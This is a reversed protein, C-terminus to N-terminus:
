FAKGISLAVSAGEINEATVKKNADNKNVLTAGDIDMYSTEFRVFAGNDMDYNYGVGVTYGDLTTNGYAGGSGLSENTIVEVEMYGAKVYLNEVPYFLAYVTTLDEFDIQVKNTVTSKAAITTKQVNETTESELAMPVYNIGIGIKDNAMVEAFISGYGFEGKAEDGESSAKKTVTGPSAGSSHAGSFIESAGDAEFYGAQLTVGMRVTQAQVSTIAFLMFAAITLFKKM